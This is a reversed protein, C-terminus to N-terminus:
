GMNMAEEENPEMEEDGEVLTLRGMFGKIEGEEKESKKVRKREKGKVAEHMKMLRKEKNKIKKKEKGSGRCGRKCPLQLYKQMYILVSENEPDLEPYIELTFITALLAKTEGVNHDDRSFLAGIYALFHHM